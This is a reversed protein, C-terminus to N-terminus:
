QAPAIFAHDAAWVGTAWGSSGAPDSSPQALAMTAFLALTSALITRKM